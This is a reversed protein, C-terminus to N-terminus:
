QGDSRRRRAPAGALRALHARWTGETHELARGRFAARLATAPDRALPGAALAVAAEVGEERALLDLVTAGLLGADAPGPPFSPPRGERLRRALAPRAHAAQGSFFAGAGLLLWAWRAAARPRTPRVAARLAPNTAAVALQALLAAPALLLLQRSEPLASARDALAQPALVHITSDGAWGVVYRRAAPATLARLAAGLPQAADLQAATAHLVVAVEEPVAPFHPELRARTEELLALLAPVDPGDREDHRAVLHPSATEVWSM